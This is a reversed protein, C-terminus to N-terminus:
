KMWRWPQRARLEDPNRCGTCFLAVRLEFELQQMRQAIADTGVLAAEMMPQAFGVMRAGLALCKAADLGTRVGGSAWVQYDAAIEQAAVLTDVTTLGWDAFTSAGTHRQSGPEARAGEIRGWHTGGLGAVDVAMINKKTLKRLSHQSFGCGTEKVVLPVSLETALRELAALGGRFTPTGEPQLAEQLPNTHVIMAVANLSQVLEEIAATPCEIAQSLGINGMLRADPAAARIDQWEQRAAKDTLERRQSGVGMLWGTQACALALAQNLQRGEQHGATMSSVFLPPASLQKFVQTQLQVDSWNLEPFAEHVLQVRAFDSLASTQMTPSLALRLHDRKRNEFQQPDEHNM